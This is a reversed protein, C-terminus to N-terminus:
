PGGAAAHGLEGNADEVAAASQLPPGDGAVRAQMVGQVARFLARRQPQEVALRGFYEYGQWERHSATLQGMAVLVVVPQSNPYAAAERLATLPRQQTVPPPMPPPRYSAPVACSALLLPVAVAALWWRAAFRSRVFELMADELHLYVNRRVARGASDAWCM